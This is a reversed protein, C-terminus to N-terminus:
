LSWPLTVWPSAEDALLVQMGEKFEQYEGNNDGGWVYRAFIYAVSLEKWSPYHGAIEAAAATIQQLANEKEMYGADFGARCLNILRAYDWILMDPVTNDGALLGDEKFAELADRMNRLRQLVVEEDQAGSAVYDKLFQKSEKMSVTSIAQWITDFQFRHGEDRLWSIMDALEEKSDIDWWESLLDRCTRKDLGTSLENLYQGNAYALNAGCAM